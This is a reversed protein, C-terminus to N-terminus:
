TAATRLQLPLLILSFNLKHEKWFRLSLGAGPGLLSHFVGVAENRPAAIYLLPGLSFMKWLLPQSYWTRSMGRAWVDDGCFWSWAVALPPTVPCELRGLQSEGSCTPGSNLRQLPSLHFLNKSPIHRTLSRRLFFHHPLVPLAYRVRKRGTAERQAYIGQVIESCQKHLFCGRRCSCFLELRTATM